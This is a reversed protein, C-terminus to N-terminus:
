PSSPWLRLIGSRTGTATEIQADLAVTGQNNIFLGEMGLLGGVKGLATTMGSKLLLALRGDADMRYVALAGDELWAVVAQQGANNPASVQLIAYSSIALRGGGPMEQGPLAVPLFRGNVFRYLAARDPNPRMALVLLNKNANNLWAAPIYGVPEGDPGAEWGYLVPGTVSGQEWLYLDGFLADWFPVMGADNFTPVIRAYQVEFIGPPLIQGLVAVPQLDGARGLFCVGLWDYGTSDILVREFAIEDHNNIIPPPCPADDWGARYTAGGFSLGNPAAMGKVAVPLV